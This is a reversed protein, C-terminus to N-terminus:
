IKIVKLFNATEEKKIKTFETGSETYQALFKHPQIFKQPKPVYAM